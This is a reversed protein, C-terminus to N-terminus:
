SSFGEKHWDGHHAEPAKGGAAAALAGGAVDGLNSAHKEIDVTGMWYLMGFVLLHLALCYAAFMNRSTRNALVMRTISFVIREPLSMRKFARASERGRFAAFPSINAEYASRYRDLTLGSATSSSIQINSPNPNTSFATSSTTSPHGRNYSSVYRTKEYLQL